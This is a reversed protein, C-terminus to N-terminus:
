VHARGIEVWEARYTGFEQGNVFLTSEWSPKLDLVIREGEAKQPLLIDGLFWCYEWVEGWSFGASVPVFKERDLEEYKLHEKTKFAQFEIEGLPEYFDAELTRIWHRIRGDWEPSLIGM